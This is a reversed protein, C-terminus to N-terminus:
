SVPEFITLPYIKLFLANVCIKRVTVLLYKIFFRNSIYLKSGQQRRLFIHPSFSLIHLHYQLFDRHLHGPCITCPYTGMVSGM